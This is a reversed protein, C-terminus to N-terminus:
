KQSEEKARREKMELETRWREEGEREGETRLM